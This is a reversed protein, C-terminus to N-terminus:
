GLGDLEPNPCVPRFPALRRPVVRAAGNEVENTQNTTKGTGGSSLGGSRSVVTKSGICTPFMQRTCITQGL